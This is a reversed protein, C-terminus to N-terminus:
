IKGRSRVDQRSSSGSSSRVELDSRSSDVISRVWQDVWLDHVRTPIRVAGYREPIPGSREPDCFCCQQKRELITMRWKRIELDNREWYVSKRKPLDNRDNTQLMPKDDHYLANGTPNGILYYANALTELAWKDTELVLLVNGDCTPFKWTFKWGETLDNSCRAFDSLVRWEYERNIIACLREASTVIRAQVVNNFRWVRGWKGSYQWSV